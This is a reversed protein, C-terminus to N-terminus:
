QVDHKHEESHPTTANHAAADAADAGNVCQMVMSGDAARTMVSYVTSKDSVHKQLVGDERRVMRAASMDREAPKLASLRSQEAGHLVKFEDPTPARMLGTEADRVMIMGPADAAFTGSSLAFAAVAAGIRLTRM